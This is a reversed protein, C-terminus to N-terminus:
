RAPPAPAPSLAPHSPPPSIGPQSLAGAPDGQCVLAVHNLFSQACDFRRISRRSVRPPLPDHFTVFRESVRIPIVAHLKPDIIAARLRHLSPLEFIKRNLYVIPLNGEALIAQLQDVTASEIHAVLDFHTALRELEEIPTGGPELRAEAEITREELLIQHAALVM